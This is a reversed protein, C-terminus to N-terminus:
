RSFGDDEENREVLKEEAKFDEWSQYEESDTFSKELKKYPEEKILQELREKYYKFDEEDYELGEIRMNNYIDVIKEFKERLKTRDAESSNVLFDELESFASDLDKKLKAELREDRQRDLKQMWNEKKM